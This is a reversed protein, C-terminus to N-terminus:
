RDRKTPLNYAEPRYRHFIRVCYHIIATALVCIEGPTFLKEAQQNIQRQLYKIERQPVHTRKFRAEWDRQAELQYEVLKHRYDDLDFSDDLTPRRKMSPAPPLPKTSVLEGHRFSADIEAPDPLEGPHEDDAREQEGAATILPPGPQQAVTNEEETAQLPDAGELMAEAYQSLSWGLGDARQQLDDKLEQTIRLTLTTKM